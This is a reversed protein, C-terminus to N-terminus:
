GFSFFFHILIVEPNAEGHVTCVLQAEHGEGAHVWAKDVTIEPPAAFHIIKYIVLFKHMNMHFNICPIIEFAFM